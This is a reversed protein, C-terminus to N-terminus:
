MLPAVLQMLGALLRNGIKSRKASQKDVIYCKKFTSVFDKNIEALAAGDATYVGCEFQQYFSRLDFNVSSVAACNESLCIKSHVFSQRMCYIKVGSEMLKEANNRSVLYIFVKDPIDPLIIRVDVGSAAKNKILGLVTDDPVFYPTMIWLKENAGSIINEYVNKGINNKYDPGDAYPVVVGGTKDNEFRNFFPSYDEQKRNVYEWQRLFMLTFADVAGGDLRVGTDKWYGHMRKENTYEDALNSGGTYATKGDVIIIKRHDRYNQIINFSPLLRNYHIVKIGAAKMRKKMKVSFVRHSGLDDYIIRVDAGNEAKQALVNVIRDLLVGDAIIFFEMFIFKEAFQIRDYVDDFLQTGSSFYKISTDTYAAFNGASYLYECDRKVSQQSDPQFFAKDYKSTRNFIAAYRKKAGRFFFREDSRIYLIFGFSFGLLLVLIWVSKSLGNKPSSLCYLCTLFSLCFSIILYIWFALGLLVYFCVFIGIQVGVLFLIIMTKLAMFSNSETRIKVAPGGDGYRAKGWRKIKKTENM